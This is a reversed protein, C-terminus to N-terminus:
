ATATPINHQKKHPRQSEEVWQAKYENLSLRNAGGKYHPDDLQVPDNQWSCEDCFGYDPFDSKNDTDCVPCNWDFM